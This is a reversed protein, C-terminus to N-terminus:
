LPQGNGARTARANAVRKGWDELATVAFYEYRKVVEPTVGDCLGAVLAVAGIRAGEPALPELRALCGAPDRRCKGARGAGRAM